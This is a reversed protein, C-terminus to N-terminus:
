SALPGFDSTSFLAVTMSSWLAFPSELRAPCSKLM